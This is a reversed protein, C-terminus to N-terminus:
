IGNDSTPSDAPNERSGPDEPCGNEDGGLGNDGKTQQVTNKFRRQRSDRWRLIQRLQRPTLTIRIDPAEPLVWGRWQSLLVFVLATIISLAMGLVPMGLKFFVVMIVASTAAPTAYLNAGGFIKPIKGVMVDRIISGGVATTLGMMLAPLVGLDLALTKQAGTAAWCGLCLADAVTILRNTWKSELRWFFAVTAGLLAGGLYFPDTFAVPIQQLLVDRTMGGGLASIVALTAFGVADFHRERALKAGIIAACFVGTVDVVRFALELVEPGFSSTPM